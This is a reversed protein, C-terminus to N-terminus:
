RQGIRQRFASLKNLAERYQSDNLDGRWLQFYTGKRYAERLENEFNSVTVWSSAQENNVTPKSRRIPATEYHESIYDILPHNEIADNHSNTGILKSSFGRQELEDRVINAVGIEYAISSGKSKCDFTENGIQYIVNDYEGTEAVVKRLWREYLPNPARSLNACLADDVGNVNNNKSWPTLEPQELIWADILDVETYIGLSRAKEITARVKTWFPPNWFKLDQKGNAVPRYAVFEAGENDTFPGLRIHTYNGGNDAIQQLAANTILPWGLQKAGRCCVIAGALFVAQGSQNVFTSGKVRLPGNTIAPATAAGPTTAAVPAANTQIHVPTFQIRELDLTLYLCQAIAHAQEAGLHDYGPHVWFRKPRIGSVYFPELYKACDSYSIGAKGSAEAVKTTTEDTLGNNTLLFLFPHRSFNRFAAVAGEWMSFVNEQFLRNRWNTYGWEVIVRNGNMGVYSFVLWDFALNRLRGEYFAFMEVTTWRNRGFAFVDCKTMQQYQDPWRQGVRLRDGEIYSDGLIVVRCKTNNSNRLRELQDVGDKSRFGWINKLGSRDIEYDVNKFRPPIYSPRPPSAQDLWNTARLVVELGLLLMGSLGFFVGVSIM